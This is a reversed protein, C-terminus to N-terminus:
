TLDGWGTNMRRYLGREDLESTPVWQKTGPLLEGGLAQITDRTAKFSSTHSLEFCGENVRFAYVEASDEEHMVWQEQASAASCKKAAAPLTTFWGTV